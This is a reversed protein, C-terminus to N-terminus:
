DGEESGQRGTDVSVTFQTAFCVQVQQEVVSELISLNFNKKIEDIKHQTRHQITGMHNYQTACFLSHM